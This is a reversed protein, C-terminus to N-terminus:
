IIELLSKHIEKWYQNLNVTKVLIEHNKYKYSLEYNESTTPYLLVGKAYKTRIDDDNEQNILYSFIQYLHGSQIKKVGYNEVLTERYFKADIIIKRENSILVIDTKMLPIYSEINTDKAELKWEIIDRNVKYNKQEIKYFNFLFNEYIKNMKREDLRFDYFKFNGKDDTPLLNENIIKCINIIFEYYRNNRHFKINKFLSSNIKIPTIQPFMVIIKMIKKKLEHNLDKVSLLKKLTTFLIRNNIIDTSFEDFKCLTKQKFLLNSKLTEAIELKGKLGSIENKTEIYNHEIGNKLLNKTANILLKAFLDLLGMGLETNVLVKDKHESKNWAYCLLYYINEIPITM